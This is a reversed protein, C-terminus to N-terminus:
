GWHTVVEHLVSANVTSWLTVQLLTSSIFVLNNLSPQESFTSLLFHDTRTLPTALARGGGGAM